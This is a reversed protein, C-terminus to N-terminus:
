CALNSPIQTRTLVSFYQGLMQLEWVIESIDTNGAAADTLLQHEPLALRVPSLYTPPHISLYICLCVVSYM